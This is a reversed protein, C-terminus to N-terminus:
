DDHLGLINRDVDRFWAFRREGVTAVGDVTKLRPLDYEEFEVGRERLARVTGPVDDVVFHVLAYAAPMAAPTREYLQLRTGAGCEYIVDVDDVHAGVPRLGLTGEYFGRAGALSETPIGAEVRADALM